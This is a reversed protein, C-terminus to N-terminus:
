SFPSRITEKRVGTAKWFFPGLSRGEALVKLQLEAEKDALRLLHNLPLDAGGDCSAYLMTFNTPLLYSECLTQRRANFETLLGLESDVVLAYRGGESYGMYKPILEELAFKWGWREPNLTPACGVLSMDVRGFVSEQLVAKSPRGDGNRTLDISLGAVATVARRVGAIERTNTEVAFVADYQELFSYPSFRAGVNPQPVWALNKPSKSRQYTVAFSVEEVANEVPVGNLAYSMEGTLLDFHIQNFSQKVSFWVNLQRPKLPAKVRKRKM